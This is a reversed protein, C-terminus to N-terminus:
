SWVLVVGTVIASANLVFTAQTPDLSISDPDTLHLKVGTDGGVGKLKITGTNGAPKVITVATPVAGGTPVAITNDGAALTIPAAVAAPSSNNIAASVSPALTLDGTFTHSITRTSSKM